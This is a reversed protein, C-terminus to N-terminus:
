SAHCEPIPAFKRLSLFFVNKMFQIPSSRVLLFDIEFSLESSLNRSSLKISLGLDGLIVPNSPPFM